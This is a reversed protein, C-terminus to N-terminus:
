DFISALQPLMSRADQNDPVEGSRDNSFRREDTGFFDRMLIDTHISFEDSPVTNERLELALEGYRATNRRFLEFREYSLYDMATEDGLFNAISGWGRATGKAGRTLDADIAEAAHAYVLM